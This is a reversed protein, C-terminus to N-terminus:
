LISAIVTAVGVVKNGTAGHLALLLSARMVVVRTPALALLLVGRTLVLGLAYEVLLRELLVQLLGLDLLVDEEGGEAVEIM